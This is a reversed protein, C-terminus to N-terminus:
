DQHLHRAARRNQLQPDNRRQELQLQRQRREHQKYLISCLLTIGAFFYLNFVLLLDAACKGATAEYDSLGTTTNSLFFNANAYPLHEFCGTHNSGKHISLTANRSDYSMATCIISRFWSSDFIRDWTLYITQAPRLILTRIWRLFVLAVFRASGIAVDSTAAPSKPLLEQISIQISGLMGCCTPPSIQFFGKVLGWSVTSLWLTALVVLLEMMRGRLDWGVWKKLLTAMGGGLIGMVVFSAPLICIGIDYMLPDRLIGPIALLTLTGYVVVSSWLRIPKYCVHKHIIHWSVNQCQRSCYYSRLCRVCKWRARRRCLSCAWRRRAVGRKKLLRRARCYLAVIPSMFVPAFPRLYRRRVIFTGMQWWIHPQRLAQMVHPPMADLWDEQQDNILLGVLSTDVRRGSPPPLCYPKGCTECNLGAAAAPHRSRCRWQEVCLYHVFAMSGSCECPALMPNQLCETNPSYTPHPLVPGVNTTTPYSVPLTADTVPDPPIVPEDEDTEPQPQNRLLRNSRRSPLLNRATQSRRTSTASSANPTPDDEEAAPLEEDADNEHLGERCIRCFVQETPYPPLTTRAPYLVGDDYLELLQFKQTSPFVLGTRRCRMVPPMQPNSSVLTDYPESPPMSGNEERTLDDEIDDQPPLDELNEVV